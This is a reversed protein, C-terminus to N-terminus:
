CCVVSSSVTVEEYNCAANFRYKKLYRVRVYYGCEPRSYNATCNGYSYFYTWGTNCVFENGPTATQVMKEKQVPSIGWALYLAQLKDEPIHAAADVGGMKELQLFTLPYCTEPTIAGKTFENSNATTELSRFSTFLLLAVLMAPAFFVKKNM